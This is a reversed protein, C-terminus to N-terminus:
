NEYSDAKISVEGSNLEHKVGQEDVVILHGYNNIDIAKFSENPDRNSITITKNLVNSFKKYEEILLHKNVPLADILSLLRDYIKAIVLSRDVNKSEAVSGYIHSIEEPVSGDQFINIGIGVVLYKYSLTELELEGETLIGSVKRNEIFLDNLWKISLDVNMLDYVVQRVALAAAITILQTDELSLNPRLLVSMYIGSSSPSYFSRGKRGRGSTQSNSVILASMLSPNERALTTAIDNTSGVVEHVELLEPRFLNLKELIRSNHLIDNTSVLSYGKNPKSLIEYGEDKLKNIEKWVNARTMNLSEAINQGSIFSNMNSELISLLKNKM